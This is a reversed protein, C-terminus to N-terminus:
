STDYTLQVPDHNELQAHTSMRTQDKEIWRLGTQDTQGEKQFTFSVARDDISGQSQRGDSQDQSMTFNSSASCITELDAPRFIPQETLDTV